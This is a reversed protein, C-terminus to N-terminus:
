KDEEDEDWTFGREMFKGLIKKDKEVSGTGMTAKADIEDTQVWTPVPDGEYLQFLNTLFTTAYSGKPLEFSIIVGVPIVAAKLITPYIKTNHMRHKLNLLHFFAKNRRHFGATKHKNLWPMYISHDEEEDSLLLPIQNPIKEGQKKLATLYSNFLYSAYARVWIKVQGPVAKLAGKYDGPHEKLHHIIQLEHHFIVPMKSYSEEIKEVNPFDERAQNRMEKIIQIDYPSTHCLAELVAKEIEGRLIYAGLRHSHMRLGGFRQIHYYNLYGNTQLEALREFIWDRDVHKDTRILMTFRNKKLEGPLITGKGPRCNKLFLGPIKTNKVKELNAFRLAIRQSTLAFTDKIGAFGIKNEDIELYQALSSIANYHSIGAKVMECYLTKEKEDPKEWGDLGEVETTIHKDKDTIEEVIFDHVFYRLFGKRRGEPLGGIGISDLVEEEIVEKTTNFAEPRQQKTVRIFEEQIKKAEEHSLM